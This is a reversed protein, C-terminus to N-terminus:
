IPKKLDGQLRRWLLSMAEVVQNFFLPLGKKLLESSAHNGALELTKQETLSLIEHKKASLFQTLM